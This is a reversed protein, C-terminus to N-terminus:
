TIEFIIVANICPSSARALSIYAATTRINNNHKHTAAEIRLSGFTHLYDINHPIIINHTCSNNVLTHSIRAVSTCCTGAGIITSESIDVHSRSYNIIM